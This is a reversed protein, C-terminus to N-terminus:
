MAEHANPTEEDVAEGMEDATTAMDDGMASASSEISTGMDAAGEQLEDGMANAKATAEEDTGSQACAGLAPLAALLAASAAIKTIAKM